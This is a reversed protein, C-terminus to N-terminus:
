LGSQIKLRPDFRLPEPPSIDIEAFKPHEPNIVINFEGPVVVSPIKMAVYKRETIWRDGYDQSSKGYPITDWGNPLEDPKPQFCHRSKIVATFCVCRDLYERDEIQVLLELLALSLSGSTYVARIGESNFRGGYLRAGEGSFASDAYEKHCIRWVKMNM